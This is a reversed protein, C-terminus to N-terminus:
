VFLERIVADATLWRSEPIVLADGSDVLDGSSLFPRAATLVQSMLAEPILSRPLGHATRLSILLLDNFRDADSEEDVRTSAAPAAIYDRLSPPNFRRIGDAGLSHAAPGLGLYPTLNWYSSNHRSHFGPLGFNSIEYHGFGADRARRCLAGYMQALLEDDTERVLGRERRRYLITGPEYSLCYASLHQIDQGLLRQLSEEWSAPTQGPLGYILDCSINGIGGDRLCRIADVAERATHRRGVAALESDILSQVGMSVRNVGAHCWERVAQPNVDEPNVEITFEEVGDLPLMGAIRELVDSPLVSPTGGGFYVTAPNIGGLESRRAIWEKELADAFESVRRSNAVSYFDCYACKAHCFPIHIYIGAM